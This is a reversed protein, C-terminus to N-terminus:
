SCNGSKERERERERERESEILLDFEIFWFFMKLALSFKLFLQTFLYIFFKNINEVNGLSYKYKCM